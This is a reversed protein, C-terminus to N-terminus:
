DFSGNLIVRFNVKFASSIMVFATIAVTLRGLAFALSRYPQMACLYFVTFLIRSGTYIVILATVALTESGGNRSMIADRQLIFAAWFIVFDFPINEMDNAFNRERRKINAPLVDGMKDELPHNSKNAGYFQCFLYKLFIILTCIAYVQFMQNIEHYNIGPM